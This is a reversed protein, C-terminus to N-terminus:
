VPALAFAIAASADYQSQRGEGNIMTAATYVYVSFGAVGPPAACPGLLDDVTKTM